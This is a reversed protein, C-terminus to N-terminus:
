CRLPVHPERVPSRQGRGTARRAERATLRRHRRLGSLNLLVPWFPRGKFRAVSFRTSRTLVYDPPRATTRIIKSQALGGTTM